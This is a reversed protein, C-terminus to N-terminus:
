GVFLLITELSSVEGCGGGTGGGGERRRERGRVFGARACGVGESLREVHECGSDKETKQTRKRDRGKQMDVM